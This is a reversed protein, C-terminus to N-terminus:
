PDNGCVAVCSSDDNLLNTVRTQYLRDASLEPRKYKKQLRPKKDLISNIVEELQHGESEHEAKLGNVANRLVM